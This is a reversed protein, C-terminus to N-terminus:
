SAGGTEATEALVDFRAALTMVGTDEMHAEASMRGALLALADRITMIEYRNLAVPMERGRDHPMYDFSHM